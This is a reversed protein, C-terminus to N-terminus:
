PDIWGRLRYSLIGLLEKIATTTAALSSADPIWSLLEPQETDVANFDTPSPVVAVGASRFVAAARPMHAASTVLLADRIGHRAMLERSRQANEYTNRSQTELLVADGPVGWEQLLRSAYESESLLPPQPFVNGGSLILRPAKGATYLRAAHRLRDSSGVLDIDVRPALPLGLGGGLVIIADASASAALPVPPYTQELSRHLATAVRGNGSVVLIALAVGTCLMASRRRNAAGLLLAAVLLWTSMGLPYVFLPLLKSLIIQLDM